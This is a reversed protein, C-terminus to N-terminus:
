LAITLAWKKLFLSNPSLGKHFLIQYTPFKHCSEMDEDGDDDDDDDDGGQRCAQQHECPQKARDVSSRARKSRSFLGDNNDDNGDDDDVPCVMTMLTLMM